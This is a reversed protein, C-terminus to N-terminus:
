DRRRQEEHQRGSAGILGFSRRADDDDAGRRLHGIRARAREALGVCHEELADGLAQDGEVGAAIDDGPHGLAPVDAVIAEAVDEPNRRRAPRVPRLDGGLMDRARKAPLDLAAAAVPEAIRKARDAFHDRHGLPHELNAKRRRAWVEKGQEGLGLKRHDAVADAGTGERDVALVFRPASRSLRVISSTSVSSVLSSSTSSDPLGAPSATESNTAPM